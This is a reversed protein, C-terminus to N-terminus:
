AEELAFSVRVAGAVSNAITSERCAAEFVRGAAAGAIRASIRAETVRMPAGDVVLEVDVGGVRVEVGQAEAVYHLDNWFCGGLAAAFLEGGNFGLGQGGAKGEPRDAVLMHGGARGLGAATGAVPSFGIGITRSM